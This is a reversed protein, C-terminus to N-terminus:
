NALLDIGESYQQIKNLVRIAEEGELLVPRYDNINKVSSVSAPYVKLEIDELVKEETYKFDFKTIMTDKDRPNKNGGFSFNALSYIIYKDKYKEIGQLVHPHHGLVLDAGHDISYHGIYKQIESQKYDKEIGWHFSLIINDVEKAKLDNIAKDVKSTCYWEICFIGAIGIKVDNKEYVYYDNNGFYNVNVDNLANITDTHGVDYYDHSHNNALNVVEINGKNLIKAYEKPAKFAFKKDKKVTSDTFTGEYNAITLDDSEFIHKVGGFFYDSGKTDYIYNFSNTYGFNEDYGFTCDGVATISIKNDMKEKEEKKEEETTVTTNIVPIDNNKKNKNNKYLVLSAFLLSLSIILMLVIALVIKKM